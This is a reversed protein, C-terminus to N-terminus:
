TRRHSTKRLISPRFLFDNGRGVKTNAKGDFRFYYLIIMVVRTHSIFQGLRVCNNYFQTTIIIINHKNGNSLSKADFRTGISPFIREDCYTIGSIITTYFDNIRRAPTHKLILITIDNCCHRNFLPMISSRVFLLLLLCIKTLQNVSTVMPRSCYRYYFSRTINNFLYKHSANSLNSAAFTSIIRDM